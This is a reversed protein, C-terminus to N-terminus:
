GPDNDSLLQQFEKAAANAAAHKEQSKKLKTPNQDDEGELIGDYKWADQTLRLVENFKSILEPARM